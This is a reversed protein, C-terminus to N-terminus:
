AAPMKRSTGRPSRSGCRGRITVRSVSVAAPSSAALAAGESGTSTTALATVPTVVTTGWIMMGIAAPSTGASRRPATM